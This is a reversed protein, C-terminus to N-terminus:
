FEPQGGAADATGSKRQRLWAAGAGLDLFFGSSHLARYGAGLSVFLDQQAAVENTNFEGVQAANIVAAAASVFFGSRDGYFWRAGGAFCPLEGLYLDAGVGFSAAFHRYLVSAQVGGHCGFAVGTGVALALHPREEARAAGMMSLLLAVAPALRRM